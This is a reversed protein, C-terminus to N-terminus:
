APPEGAGSRRVWLVRFDVYTHIMPLRPGITDALTHARCYAALVPLLEPSLPKFKSRTSGTPTCSRCCITPSCTSRRRPLPSMRGNEPLAQVLRQRVRSLRPRREPDLEFTNPPRWAGRRILSAIEDRRDAARSTTGAKASPASRFGTASETPAYRWATPTNATRTQRYRKVIAGSPRPGPAGPTTPPNSPTM